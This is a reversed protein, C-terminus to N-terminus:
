YLLKEVCIEIFRVSKMILDATGEGTNLVEAEGDGDGGDDDM